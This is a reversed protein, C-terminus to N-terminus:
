YRRTNRKKKKQNRKTKRKRQRRKGGMIREEKPIRNEENAKKAMEGNLFKIIEPLDIFTLFGNIKDLADNYIPEIKNYADIKDRKLTEMVPYVNTLIENALNFDNKVSIYEYVVLRPPKYPSPQKKLIEQQHNEQRNKVYTIHDIMMDGKSILKEVLNLQFNLNREIDVNELPITMHTIQEGKAYPILLEFFSLKNSQDTVCDQLAKLFIDINHIDAHEVLLSFKEFTNDGIVKCTAGKGQILLSLTSKQGNTITNVALYQEDETLKNLETELDTVTKNEDEAIDHILTRKSFPNLWRFM